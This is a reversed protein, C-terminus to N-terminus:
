SATPVAFAKRWCLPGPEKPRRAICRHPSHSRAAISNRPFHRPWTEPATSASQRAFDGSGSPRDCAVGDCPSWFHSTVQTGASRALIATRHEDIWYWNGFRDRGAGRRDGLGPAVDKAAATFMFLTPRLTVAHRERDWAVPVEVAPADGTRWADGLAHGDGDTCRSWDAAGLLLHFRTGNADM